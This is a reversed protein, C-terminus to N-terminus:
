VVFRTSRASPRTRMRHSRGDYEDSASMIASARSRALISSGTSFRSNWELSAITPPLGYLRVCASSSANQSRRSRNRTRQRSLAQRGAPSTRRTGRAVSSRHPRRAAARGLARPRIAQTPVATLFSPILQFSFACGGRSGADAAPGPPWRAAARPLKSRPRRSAPSVTSYTACGGRAGPVGVERARHRPHRAARGAAHGRAKADICKGPRARRIRRASTGPTRVLPHRARGCCRGAQPVRPGARRGGAASRHHQRQVARLDPM